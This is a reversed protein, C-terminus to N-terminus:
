HDDTAIDQRRALVRYVNARDAFRAVPVAVARDLLAALMILPVGATWVVAQRARTGLGPRPSWPTTRFPALRSLLLASAIVFDNVQHAPGREVAVPQLGLTAMATLLNGLPMMHQHQPQFWPMWYPGFLPALPFQPDPLEILLYGGPPLVRAATDIEALPDRTHELYHHMSIVDYRGALTDAMDRFEGRYATSIWGRQEADKIEAGQDLGDFVTAPWVESAVACFHAHGAGVDLWAKPTTFPKLMRARGLYSDIGSSFVGEADAAGVGDYVDRYYFSLGELSLRPNQFVHGCGHCRELTFKGPKGVALDPTRVLV